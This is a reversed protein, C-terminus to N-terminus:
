IVHCPDVLFCVRSEYFRYLDKLEWIYYVDIFVKIKLNIEKIRELKKLLNKRIKSYYIYDLIEKIIYIM